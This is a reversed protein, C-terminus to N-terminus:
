THGQWRRYLNVGGATGTSPLWGWVLKGVMLVGSRFVLPLLATACCVLPAGDALATVLARESEIERQALCLREARPQQFGCLVPRGREIVREDAVRQGLQPAAISVTRDV